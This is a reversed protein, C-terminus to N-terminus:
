AHFRARIAASDSRDAGRSGAATAVSNASRDAGRSGSAAASFASLTAGWCPLGCSGM